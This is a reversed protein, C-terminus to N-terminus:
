RRPKRGTTPATREAKAPAEATEGLKKLYDSYKMCQGSACWKKAQDEDSLDVIQNKRYSWYEGAISRLMIVRM